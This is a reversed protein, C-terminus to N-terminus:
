VKSIATKQTLTSMLTHAHTHAHTRSHVYMSEQGIGHPTSQFLLVGPHPSVWPELQWAPLLELVQYSVQASGFSLGMSSPDHPETRMPLCQLPHVSWEHGECWILSLLSCSPSQQTTWPQMHETPTTAAFTNQYKASEM